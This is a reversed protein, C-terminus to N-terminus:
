GVEAKEKRGEEREEMSGSAEEGEGRGHGRCHAFANEVGGIYESARCSFYSLRFVFFIDMRNKGLLENGSDNTWGVVVVVVAIEMGVAGVVAVVLAAFSYGDDNGGGDDLLPFPIM